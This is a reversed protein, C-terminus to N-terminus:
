ELLIRVLIPDLAPCSVSNRHCPLTLFEVFAALGEPGRINEAEMIQVAVPTLGPKLINAYHRAGAMYIAAFRRSDDHAKGDDM